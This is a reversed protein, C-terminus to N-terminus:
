IAEKVKPNKKPKSSLDFVGTQSSVEPSYRMVYTNCLAGLVPGQGLLCFKWTRLPWLFGSSSAPFVPGVHWPLVFLVRGDPIRDFCAWPIRIKPAYGRMRFRPSARGWENEVAVHLVQMGYCAGLQQTRREFRRAKRVHDHRSVPGSVGCKSVNSPVGTGRPWFGVDQTGM